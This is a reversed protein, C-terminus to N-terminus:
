SKRIFEVQCKPCTICIRGRGKPVRVMQGCGPCKYFRYVKKQAQREKWKGWRAVGRYRISLFKRNEQQRKKTNKSLARWYSFVLLILSVLYIFRNKTFLSVVMLVLTAALAVKSLEDFGYRGYMFRQVKDRM